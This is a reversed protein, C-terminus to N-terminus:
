QAALLGLLTLLDFINVAGDDNADAGSTPEAAGSLVSLMQLLDFIDVAGSGNVDGPVTAAVGDYLVSFRYTTEPAGAPDVVTHLSDGAQIYYLINQGEKQGPINATFLNIKDAVPTMEVSRFQQGQVAYYLKASRVLVNDVITSTITYPGLEDTTNDLRTTSSVVPAALDLIVGLTYESYLALDARATATNASTDLETALQVFNGQDDKGFVSIASETFEPIDSAPIDRDEYILTLEFDLTSLSSELDSSLDLGWGRRIGYFDGGLDGDGSLFPHVAVRDKSKKLYSYKGELPDGGGALVPEGGALTDTLSGSIETGQLGADAGGGIADDGNNGVQVNLGMGPFDATTTGGAPIQPLDVDRERIIKFAVSMLDYGGRGDDAEVIFVASPIQVDDPLKSPDFILISNNRIEVSSIYPTQTSDISISVADGDPDHTTIEFSITEDERVLPNDIRSIEPPQNRDAVTIAVEIDATQAGDGTIFTVKYEGDQDFEPVWFFDGTSQVLGAGDPLEASFVELPEGSADLARVTFELTDGEDIEWEAPVTITPPLSVDVVTIEVLENDTLEGDSAVVSVLYIGAQTYDPQFTFVGGQRNFASNEPLPNIFISVTESEPDIASVPVTLTDGESVTLPGIEGLIPPQDASDGVTIIIARSDSADAQDTVTFNVPYSGELTPTWSFLPPDAANDFSAGSPLGTASFTLVDDSDPDSAGVELSVAEDVDALLNELGSLLPRRNKDQVTVANSVSYIEGDEASVPFTLSYAGAQEYGPRWRFVGSVIDFTANQPLNEPDDFVVRRGDPYNGRVTFSLLQGEQVTYDDLEALEPVQPVPEVVILVEQESSFRGDGVGLIIRFTDRQTYGPTWTFTLEVPDFFAGRPLRRAYYYLVRVASLTPEEAEITFALPEGQKVLFPGYSPFSPPQFGAGIVAHVVTVDKAGKSDFAWVTLKHPGVQDDAPTWTIEGTQPDLAAGPPITSAGEANVASYTIVDGPDPDIAETRVVLPVGVEGTVPPHPIFLPRRNAALVTLTYTRSAEGGRGDRVTVTFTYEGASGFPATISIVGGILAAGPPLQDVSFTLRDKDPDSAPLPAAAPRGAQVVLPKEFEGLVPPRNVKEVPIKLLFTTAAGKTDKAIFTAILEQRTSGLIPVVLSFTGTGDGNDTFASGAVQQGTAELSVQDGEPDSARIVVSYQQGETAKPPTLPDFVPPRNQVVVQAKYRGEGLDYFGASESQIDLFLPWIKLLEDVQLSVQATWTGTIDRGSLRNARCAFVAEPNDELSGEGALISGDASLALSFVVSGTAEEDFEVAGITFGLAAAAPDWTLGTLEPL